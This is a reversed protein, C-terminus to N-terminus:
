VFDGFPKQLICYTDICMHACLFYDSQTYISLFRTSSFFFCNRVIKNALLNRLSNTPRMLKGLSNYAGFFLWSDFSILYFAVSRFNSLMGSFLFPSKIVPETEIVRCGSWVGNEIFAKESPETPTRKARDNRQKQKDASNTVSKKKTYLVANSDIQRM